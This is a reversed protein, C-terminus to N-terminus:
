DNSKLKEKAKIYNRAIRKFSAIVEMDKESVNSARFAFASNLQSQKQNEELLDKTEVGFLDALKMLTPIPVSRTGNEYYSIMVREITLYNAVQEQSLGLSDRLAKLNKGITNDM